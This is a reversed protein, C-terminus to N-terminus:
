NSQIFQNKENEYRPQAEEALTIDEDILLRTLLMAQLYFLSAISASEDIWEIPEFPQNAVHTVVKRTETTTNGESDTTTHTEFHYCEMHFNWKPPAKIGKNINGMAELFDQLNNLYAASENCYKGSLLHIVWIIIIATVPVTDDDGMHINVLAYPTAIFTILFMITGVLAMCSDQCNTGKTDDKQVRIGKKFVILEQKEGRVCVCLGSPKNYEFTGTITEGMKRALQGKGHKMGQSWEGKYVDGNRKTETGFGHRLGYEWDGDYYSGDIM